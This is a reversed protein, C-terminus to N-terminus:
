KITQSLLASEEFDEAVGQLDVKEYAPEDSIKTFEQEEAFDLEPIEENDMYLSFTTGDFEYEAESDIDFDSPVIMTSDDIIKFEGADSREEGNVTGDLEYSGDEYVTLTGQLNDYEIVDGNHYEKSGTWEYVGALDELTTEGPDDGDRVISAVVSEAEQLDFPVEGAEVQELYDRAADTKSNVVEADVPDGTDARAGEVIYAIAMERNMEGTEMEQVWYDLGEADPGRDFLNEYILTVLEDNDLGGPFREQAEDSLMMNSAVGSLGLDEYQQEWYELGELDPARGFTAVYLDILVDRM